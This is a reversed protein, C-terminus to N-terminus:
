SSSTRANHLYKLCTFRKDRICEQLYSFRMTGIVVNLFENVSTQLARSVVMIQNKLKIKRVSVTHFRTREGFSRATAHKTNIYFLQQNFFIFFSIMLIQLQKVTLKFLIIHWIGELFFPFTLKKYGDITNSM